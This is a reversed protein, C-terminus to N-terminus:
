QNKETGDLSGAQSDDAAEIGMNETEEVAAESVSENLLTQAGETSVGEVAMAPEPVRVLTEGTKLDVKALPYLLIFCYWMELGVREIMAFVLLIECLFPIAYDHRKIARYNAISLWLLTYGMWVAGRMIAYSIYSSDLVGPEIFEGNVNVFNHINSRYPNGFIPFGFSKLYLGNHVFRYKITGILATDPVNAQVWEYNLSVFLVFALALFPTVTIIWGFVGVRQKKPVRKELWDVFLAMVPFVITLLAITRCKVYFFMFVSIAWFIAFTLVHKGRLYIYWGTMLALFVIYGWTNPYVIGLSHGGTGDIKVREYTYGLKLGLAAVILMFIAAWMVCKLIKKYNKGCAMLCFFVDLVVGYANTSMVRSFWFTAGLVIIALLIIWLTSKWLKRWEIIVYLLYLASGWMIVSLLAYRFNSVFEGVNGKWTTKLVLFLLLYVSLMILYIMENAKAVTDFFGKFYDRGRSLLTKNEM